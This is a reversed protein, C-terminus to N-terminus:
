FFKKPDLKETRVKYHLVDNLRFCYQCSLVKNINGSIEDQRFDKCTAPYKGCNDCKLIKKEEKKM